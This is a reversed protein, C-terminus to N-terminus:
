KGRQYFACLRAVIDLNNFETTAFTVANQAIQTCISPKELLNQIADVFASPTDAICIEKGNEASIGEAGISTSVIVKGYSLGELIKIRMGGGALLPVIMITHKSMFEHADPVEGVYVVGDISLQDVFWQPANRGAVFLHIDPNQRLIEKWCNDLFWQLGQQNPSWDLAGIHFLSVTEEQPTSYQPLDNVFIGTPAIFQPKTNGIQNYTEGDRKTIPILFDYTNLMSKEFRGVRKALNKLYLRKAFNKTEIALRKWIEFEVNHARYAIKAHSCKRILPIYACM